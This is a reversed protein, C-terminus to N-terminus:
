RVIRNNEPEGEKVQQYKNQLHTLVLFDDCTEM